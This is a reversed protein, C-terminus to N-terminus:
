SKIVSVLCGCGDIMCRGEPGGSHDDLLHHCRPCLLAYNSEGGLREKLVEVLREFSECVSTEKETEGRYGRPHALEVIFGNSVRWVQIPNGVGESGQDNM